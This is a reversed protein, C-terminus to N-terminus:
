RLGRVSARCYSNDSEDVEPATVKEVFFMFPERAAQEAQEPTLQTIYSQWPISPYNIFYGEGADPLTKIYDLFVQNDTGKKTSFFYTTPIASASISTSTSMREHTTSKVSRASVISTTPSRRRRRAGAWCFSVLCRVPNMVLSGYRM